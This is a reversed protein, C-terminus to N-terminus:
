RSGIPFGIKRRVQKPPPALLPQLRKWLILISCDHELLTKDIEALRRFIVASNEFEERMRVFARVVYVTMAVAKASRLISAAMIAGHETFALVPKRRGGRGKKGQSRTSRTRVNSIVTQSILRQYEDQSVERIFDPPFRKWNRRVAQNFAATTVGYLRALDHDFIVRHGNINHIRANLRGSTVQRM